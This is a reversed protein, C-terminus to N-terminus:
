RAGRCLPRFLHEGQAVDRDVLEAPRHCAPRQSPVSWGTPGKSTDIQHRDISRPRLPGPLELDAAEERAGRFATLLVRIRERGLGRRSLHLQRLVRFRDAPEDRRVPLPCRGRLSRCPTCTRQGDRVCCGRCDPRVDPQHRHHPRTPGRDSISALRRPLVSGFLTTSM